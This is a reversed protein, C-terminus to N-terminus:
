GKECIESFIMIKSLCHENEGNQVKPRFNPNRAPRRELLGLVQDGTYRWILTKGHFDWFGLFDHFDHFHTM